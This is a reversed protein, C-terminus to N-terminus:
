IDLRLQHVEFCVLPAPFHQVGLHEAEFQWAKLWLEQEIDRGQTEQPCRLVATQRWSDTNLFPPALCSFLVAYFTCQRYFHDPEMVCM